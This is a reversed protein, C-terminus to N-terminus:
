GGLMALNKTMGSNDHHLLHTERKYQLLAEIQEKTGVIDGRCLNDRLSSASSAFLCLHLNGTSSVRLRNCSKCFEESYPMILGIKGTYDPHSYEDAPGANAEKQTKKWGQEILRNQLVQGSVHQSRHFDSNDGTRMLEIFRWTVEKDKTFALFQEWQDLNYQKMLVTNIKVNDLGSDLALDITDLVSHLKQKGTIARFQYPNLSDASINLASLGSKIYKPLTKPLNFANSTMAVKKIGSTSAAIAIIDCLDKRLTPEGGTIRIKSTGLLSFAHLLTEIEFLSLENKGANCDNGNPLCYNCRFNCLDTVSLRLYEFRRGFADYLM